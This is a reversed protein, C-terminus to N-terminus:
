PGKTNNEHHRWPTNLYDWPEKMCLIQRKGSAGHCDWPICQRQIGMLSGHFVLPPGMSSRHALLIYGPPSGYVVWPRGMPLFYIGLSSGYIVWPRGMSSSGHAMMPPGYDVRSRSKASGHFWSWLLPPVGRKVVSDLDSARNARSGVGFRAESHRTPAAYRVRKIYFSLAAASMALDFVVFPLSLDAFLYPLWERWM